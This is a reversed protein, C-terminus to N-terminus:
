GIPTQLNLVGSPFGREFASMPLLQGNQQSVVPCSRPSRNLNCFDIDEMNNAPLVVEDYHLETKLVEIARDAFEALSIGKWEEVVKQRPIPM